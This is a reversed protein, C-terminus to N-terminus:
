GHPLSSRQISEGPRARGGLGAADSGLALLRQIEALLRGKDLPKELVTAVGPHNATAQAERDGFATILITPPFGDCGLFEDLVDLTSVLPIDSLVVDFEPIERSLVSRELHVLLDFDSRCVTVDFGAERLWGVLLGRVTDDNEAALIRDRRALINPADSQTM